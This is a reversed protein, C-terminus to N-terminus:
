TQQVPPQKIEPKILKSIKKKTKTLFEDKSTVINQTVSPAMQMKAAGRGPGSIGGIFDVEYYRMKPSTSLIYFPGILIIVLFLHLFSSYAYYRIM